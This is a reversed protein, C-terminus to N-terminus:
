KQFIDLIFIPLIVSELFDIEGQNLEIKKNKVLFIMTKRTFFYIGFVNEIRNTNYIQNPKLEGLNKILFYINDSVSKLSAAEYDYLAFKASDVHYVLIDDLYYYKKILNRIATKDPKHILIELLRSTLKNNLYYQLIRTNQQSYQQKMYFIQQIILGCILLAISVWYVSFM